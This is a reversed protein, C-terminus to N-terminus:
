AAPLPRGAVNLHKVVGAKPDVHHLETFQKLDLREQGKLM